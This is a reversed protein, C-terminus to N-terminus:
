HKLIAAIVVASGVISILVTIVIVHALIPGTDALVLNDVDDRVRLVAPLDIGIRGLNNRQRYL